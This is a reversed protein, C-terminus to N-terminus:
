EQQEGPRGEPNSETSAPLRELGVMKQGQGVDQQPPPAALPVQHCYGQLRPRSLASMPILCIRIWRGEPPPVVRLVSPRKQLLYTAVQWRRVAQLM